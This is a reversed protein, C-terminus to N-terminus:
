GIISSLFGAFGNGLAAWLTGSVSVSIFCATRLPKEFLFRELRTLTPEAVNGSEMVNYLLKQKLGVPPNVQTDIAKIIKELEKDNMKEM